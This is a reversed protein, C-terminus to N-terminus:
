ESRYSGKWERPTPPDETWRNSNMPATKTWVANRWDYLWTELSYTLMSNYGGTFLSHTSNLNAICPFASFSYSGTPHPPGPVWREGTFIESNWLLSCIGDYLQRRGTIWLGQEVVLSSSDAWCHAQNSNPLTSWASGNFKWCRNSDILKEGGCAIVSGNYYSMAAPDSSNGPYNTLNCNATLGDLSM